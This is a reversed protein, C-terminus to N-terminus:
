CPAGSRLQPRTYFFGTCLIMSCVKLRVVMPLVLSNVLSTLSLITSRCLAQICVFGNALLKTLLLCSNTRNNTFPLLVLCSDMARHRPSWAHYGRTRYRHDDSLHLIVGSSCLPLKHTIELCSPGCDGLFGNAVRTQLPFFASYSGLFVMGVTLCPPPFMISQPQKEAVPVPRSWRMLPVISPAMYRPINPKFRMGENGGMSFAVKLIQLPD